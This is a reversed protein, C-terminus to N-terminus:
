RQIKMREMLRNASDDSVEAAVIWTRKLVRADNDFVHRHGKRLNSSLRLEGDDFLLMERSLRKVADLCDENLPWPIQPWQVKVEGNSSKETEILAHQQTKQRAQMIIFDTILVLKGDSSLKGFVIDGKSAKASLDELSMGFDNSTAQHIDLLKQVELQGWPMIVHLATNLPALSKRHHGILSRTDALGASKRGCKRLWSAHKLLDPIKSLSQWIWRINEGRYVHEAALANEEPKDVGIAKLKEPDTTVVRAQVMHSCVLTTLGPYFDSSEELEATKVMGETVEILGDEIGLKEKLCKYATQEVSERPLKRMSLTREGKKMMQRYRFYLDTSNGASTVRTPPTQDDAVIVADKHPHYVVVVVKEMTRKVGDLPTGLLFAKMDALENFLLQLKTEPWGSTDVDHSNLIQKVTEVSWPAPIVDALHGGATSHRDATGLDKSNGCAFEVLQLGKKELEAPAMWKYSRKLAVQNSPLGCASSEADLSGKSKPPAWKITKPPAKSQLDNAHKSVHYSIVVSHKGTCDEDVRDRRLSVCDHQTSADSSSGTTGGTDGLSESESAYHQYSEDKHYLHNYAAITVMLVMILIGALLVVRATNDIEATKENMINVMMMKNDTVKVKEKLQQGAFKTISKWWSSSNQLVTHRMRTSNRIKTPSFVVPRSGRAAQLSLATTQSLLAFPALMCVESSGRAAELSLATTQSLLAITALMALVAMGQTM